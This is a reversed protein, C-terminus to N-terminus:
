TFKLTAMVSIYAGIWQFNKAFGKPDASCVEYVEPKFSALQLKVIDIARLSWNPTEIFNQSKFM